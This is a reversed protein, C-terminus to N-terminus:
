GNHLCHWLCLRCSYASTCLSGMLGTESMCGFCLQPGCGASVDGPVSLLRRAQLSPAAAPAPGRAAALAELAAAAAAALTEPGSGEGASARGATGAGGEHRSWSPNVPQSPNQAGARWALTCSLLSCTAAELLELRPLLLCFAGFPAWEPAPAGAPDFRSGGLARVRPAGESLFAQIGRM